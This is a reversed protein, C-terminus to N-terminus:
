RIDLFAFYALICRHTCYVRADANLELRDEWFTHFFTALGQYQEFFSDSTATIVNDSSIM